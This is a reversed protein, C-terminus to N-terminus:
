FELEQGIGWNGLSVDVVVPVGLKVGLESLIRPSEMIGKVKKLLKKAKKTRVRGVVADHITGCVRLDKNPIEQVIQTAAMFTLEGGFGQVPSNISQREAQSSLKFDPSDIEPLHRVRGTLTRVQGTANVIRRQKKHWPELGPYMKFFSERYQKSQRESLVVGYKDLAYDMFKNWGMGYLFGFNVAKAKKRDEKTLQDIPIGSVASATSSHIDGGTNFIELMVPCQSLLAAIRLEMQSYDAEFFTWGDPAGILSRIMTLRPVQQLNPDSCSPRGTVTGSVKFGPHLWKGDHMRKEWGSIFSTDLKSAARYKLLEGIIPHQNEMRALFDSATSPEGKPTFGEPILQLNDFLIGNVQKSSNWNIDRAEEDILYNNLKRLSKKLDRQIKKKAKQMNPIDIYVGNNEIVEYATAAPMVQKRFLSYVGEEKLLKKYHYYATLTYYIDWAAYECLKVVDGGGKKTKIDVDYPEGGLENVAIYKLSNPTNEDVLHAALMTDFTLPFKVGFLVELWKNDFKGNQAVVDQKRQLIKAFYKVITEQAKYKAFPSGPLSFPIVWEQNNSAIGLITIASHEVRPDLGTTELDYSIVRSKKIDKFCKRLSELDTVVTYNLKHSNIEEGRTIRAFREIDNRIPVIRKPDRIAMAPHFIPYYKVGNKEIITGHISTIKAKHLCAKLANAGLMLVYEPQIREIEGLLYPKCAKIESANPARGQPTRCKVSGTIYMQKIDLDNQKLLKKFMDGARGSLYNGDTETQQNPSDVVVMIRAQRNGSGMICVKYANNCLNCENCYADGVLKADM